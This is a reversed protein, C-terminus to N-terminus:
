EHADGPPQRPENRPRREVVITVPGENVLEVSMTGGFVGRAVCLGHERELRQVFREVLPAAEEPPAAGVFSPRNGRRADGALTFQSIVMAAGVAERVSRNMKGGDDAFIRLNAVKDAGWDIEADGDGREVGVLVLLGAGISEDHGAGVGERVVVRARSVRQVLVIM